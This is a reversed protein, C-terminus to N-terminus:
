SIRQNSNRLATNVHKEVVRSHKERLEDFHAADVTNVTTHVHTVPASSQAPGTSARHAVSTGPSSAAASAKSESVDPM